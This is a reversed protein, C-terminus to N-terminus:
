RKTDTEKENADELFVEWTRRMPEFPRHIAEATRQEWEDAKDTLKKAFMAAERRNRFIGEKDFECYPVEHTCIETYGGKIYGRVTAKRVVYEKYPAASTPKYYYNEKVSWLVTGVKPKDMRKM